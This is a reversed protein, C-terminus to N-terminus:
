GSRRTSSLRSKVLHKLPVRGSLRTRLWFLPKGLNQIFWLTLLNKLGPGTDFNGIIATKFRFWHRLQRSTPNGTIGYNRDFVPKGEARTTEDKM